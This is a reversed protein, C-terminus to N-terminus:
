EAMRWILEDKLIVDNHKMCCLDKIKRNIYPSLIDQHFFAQNGILLASMNFLVFDWYKPEKLIKKADMVTIVTQVNRSILWLALTIRRKPNQDILISLSSVLGAIISNLGDEKNRTSRLLCNISKYSQTLIGVFLAFCLSDFNLLKNSIKSLKLRRMLLSLVLKIATQIIYGYAFNKSFGKFSNLLCSDSHKWFKTRSRFIQTLFSRTKKHKKCTKVEDVIAEVDEINM